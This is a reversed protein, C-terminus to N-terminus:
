PGPSSETRTFTYAGNDTTTIGLYSWEGAPDV